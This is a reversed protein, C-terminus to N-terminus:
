AGKILPIRGKIVPRGSFSAFYELDPLGSLADRPVLDTPMTQVREGYSASYNLVQGGVGTNTSQQTQVSSTFTQGFNELIYEATMADRTRGAIISGANGLVQRALADSGLKAIFDPVTQSLFTIDFGAGRGKNLMQILPNNVAENSEDIYLSVRPEKIGLNFRNGAHATLDALVISAISFAVVADSLADLGMYVVAGSEVISEGTLIPRPDTVDNRDPSLLDSLDGATLMTLIPILSALMKQAHERNHSFMSILGDIPGISNPGQREAQYYSVLALTDNSTTPSPRNYRNINRLYPEIAARWDTGEDEFHKVLTRHLLPDIGGEVYSRITRLTPRTGLTLVCGEVVLHLVRWAFASWPDHGTESPILAAIRSAVETPRTWCALADIRVSERPFAPHFAAWSSGRGVAVCESELLDRLQKDGKPDVVIVTEGRRIAQVALLALLRTKLAGTIGPVFVHGQLDTLPVYVDEEFPEVGHLLPSGRSPLGRRCCRAVVSEFPIRLRRTDLQQLDQLRQAHVRSWLFGWGLWVHGPRASMKAALETTTLWEVGRGRLSFRSRWIPILTRIHRLALWIGVGITAALPGSPLSEVVMGHLCIGCLSLWALIAYVEYGARWPTSEGSAM